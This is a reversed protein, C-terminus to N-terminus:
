GISLTRTWNQMLGPRYARLPASILAWPHKRQTRSELQRGRWCSDASGFLCEIPRASPLRMQKVDAVDIAFSLTTAYRQIARSAHYRTDVSDHWQEALKRRM